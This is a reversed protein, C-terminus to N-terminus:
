KRDALLCFNLIVQEIQGADGKVTAIDETYSVNMIISKDLTISFISTLLYRIVIKLNMLVKM